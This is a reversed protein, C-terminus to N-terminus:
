VYGRTAIEQNFWWFGAASVVAVLIMLLWGVASFNTHAENRYRFGSGGLLFAVGFVVSAPAFLFAKPSYDVAAAGHSAEQLPRLIFFWGAALGLAILALGGMRAKIDDLM